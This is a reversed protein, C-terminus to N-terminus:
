VLGTAETPQGRDQTTYRIRYVRPGDVTFDPSGIRIKVYRGENTVKTEYAAGTDDLVEVFRLGLSYGYGRPDTYRVPISRYIGHRPELFRVEIRESVVVDADADVTVDTHFREIVFGGRDAHAGTALVAVVALLPPLRARSLQCSSGM